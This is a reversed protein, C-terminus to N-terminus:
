PLGGDFDGRWEERWHLDAHRTHNGVYELPELQFEAREQWAEIRVIFDPDGPERVLTKNLVYFLRREWDAEPIEEGPGLGRVWRNLPGMNTVLQKYKPPSGGFARQYYIRYFNWKPVNLDEKSVRQKSGDHLTVLLGKKMEQKDVVRKSFTPEPRSAAAYMPAWTLPFHDIRFVVALWLVAFYVLLFRDVTHRQV